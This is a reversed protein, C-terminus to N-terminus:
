AKINISSQAKKSQNEKDKNKEISEKLDKLYVGQDELMKLVQNRIRESENLLQSTSITTRKESSETSKTESDETQAPEATEEVDKGGNKFWADLKELSRNFTGEALSSVDDTMAGLFNKAENYGQTISSKAMKYFSELVKTDDEGKHNLKYSEYVIKAFNFIDDSVAEVGWKSSDLGLKKEIASYDVKKNNGSQILDIQSSLDLIDNTTLKRISNSEKDRTTDSTKSKASDLLISNQSFKIDTITGAM